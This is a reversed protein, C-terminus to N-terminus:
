ARTDGRRDVASGRKVQLRHKRPRWEVDDCYRSDEYVLDTFEDSWPYKDFDIPQGDPHDPFSTENLCYFLGGPRVCRGILDFYGAIIPYTMEQFSSCNVAADLLASPILAAQEPCLMVFDNDWVADGLAEVENPLVVSAKPAYHAITAYGFNFTEPLDVFVFRCGFIQHLTVALHASGPGIELIHRVRGDRLHPALINIAYAYYFAKDPRADLHEALPAVDPVTQPVLAPDPVARCAAAFARRAIDYRRAADLVETARAARYVLQRWSRAPIRRVVATAARVLASRSAGSPGGAGERTGMLRVPRDLPGSLLLGIGDSFPFAHVTDVWRQWFRSVDHSRGHGRARPYQASEHYRM